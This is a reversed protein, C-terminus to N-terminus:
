KNSRGARFAEALESLILSVSAISTDNGVIPYAADALDCDSSMLAIIPIRLSKAEAVAIKERKTDIVLLADPRKELDKAGGLREALRTAERSRMLRELKTFKREDTSGDTLERLRAIRKKIEAFNTLTGGLWRGAVFPQGCSEAAAKVAARVEEKGGVFLVTAGEKGYREMAEKAKALLAETKALDIVDVKAKTGFVFPRM